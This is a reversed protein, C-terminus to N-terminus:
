TGTDERYVYRREAGANRAMEALEEYEAAIRLLSQRAQEDSLQGAISRVEAARDLWHKQKQWFKM